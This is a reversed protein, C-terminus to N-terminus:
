QSQTIFIRRYFKRNAAQKRAHRSFSPNVTLVLMAPPPASQVEAAKLPLRGVEALQRKRNLLRSFSASGPKPLKETLTKRRFLM